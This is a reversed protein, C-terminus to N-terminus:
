RAFPDRSEADTGCYICVPQRKALTRGCATCDVPPVKEVRGDLAGDRLDIEDIKAVLHEDTLGERERIYEWLAETIMLLRNVERRLHTVETGARAAAGGAEAAAKAAEVTSGIGYGSVFM